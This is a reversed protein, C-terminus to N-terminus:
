PQKLRAAEMRGLLPVLTIAVVAMLVAVSVFATRLSFVQAVIGMLPPGVFFAGYGLVSVRSIVALRLRQPVARGALALTLPAVVSVGLGALAFFGLAVGVTSALGAGILGVASVLCACMMLVPEPMFRALAYGSLRGVGMMLGLLAPGMAGQQPGGGLGREIHLASWGEASAEVLFGFFVLAGAVWILASPLHPAPGDQTEQTTEVATGISGWALVGFPVLMALFVEFPTWSAERLVGVVLAAGAYAFSYLAHNLNMLARGSHAETQAIDANILVDVIGSAASLVLLMLALAWLSPVVGVGLLSLGIAAVALPVAFRGARSLAFPAMWMAALAGLSACLVAIGYAGDSAGVHGKVVPMQAFYASWGLGIAIFGCLPKASASIDSLFRM